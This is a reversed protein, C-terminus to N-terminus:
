PLRARIFAEIREARADWTLAQGMERAARSLRERRADDALLAALARGALELEAPPVLVANQDDTLLAM